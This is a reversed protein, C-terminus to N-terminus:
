IIERYCKDIFTNSLNISKRNEIGINVYKFFTYLSRCLESEQTVRNSNSYENHM